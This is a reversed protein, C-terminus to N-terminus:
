MHWTSMEEQPSSGLFDIRRVGTFLSGTMRRFGAPPMM